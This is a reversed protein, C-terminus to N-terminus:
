SDSRECSRMRHSNRRRQWRQASLWGVFLAVAAGLVVDAILIGPSFWELDGLLWRAFTLPFGVTDVKGDEYGLMNLLTLGVTVVAGARVFVWWYGRERVGTVRQERVANSSEDAVQNMWPDKALVQRTDYIGARQTYGAWSSGALQQPPRDRLPVRLVTLRGFVTHCFPQCGLHEVRARQLPLLQCGAEKTSM